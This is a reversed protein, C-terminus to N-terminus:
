RSVSEGCRWCYEADKLTDTGCRTCKTNSSSKLAKEIASEMTEIAADVKESASEMMQRTTEGIDSQEVSKIADGVKKTTYAMVQRMAEVAEEFTPTSESIPDLKKGCKTCFMNPEPVETGCDNCKRM